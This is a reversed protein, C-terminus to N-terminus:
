QGTSRGEILTAILPSSVEKMGRSGDPNVIDGSPVMPPPSPADVLELKSEAALDDDAPESTVTTKWIRTLLMGVALILGSVTLVTLLRMLLVMWWILAAM